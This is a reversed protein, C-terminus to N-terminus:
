PKVVGINAITDGKKLSPLARVFLIIGTDPAVVEAVQRGVYDKINGIVDGRAVHGDRSVRPYFTGGQDAAVTVVKEIWVPNAVPGGRQTPGDQSLSM